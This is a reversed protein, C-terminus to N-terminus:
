SIAKALDKPSAGLALLSKVLLDISVSPDGAEMKAVIKEAIEGKYFVDPGDDAILQLTIALDEQVLLEGMKYPVKGPKYFYGCTTDDVCLRSQRNRLNSSLEHNLIIGNRALDAAPQVLRKWPLKGFEQHAYYLGAVTGPVGSSLLSRRSLNPDANGDADLFMDRTATLPAMERYDIATTTGSEADYVLMFGGGGINGASPMTVALSFGVAVAADVANGGDALVQAGIEAPIRNQAAVMGTKSYVPHHMKKYTVTEQASALTCVSSLQLALILLCTRRM